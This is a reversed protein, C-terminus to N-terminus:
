LNVSELFVNVNVNLAFRIRRSFSRCLCAFGNCLQKRDYDSDAHSSLTSCYLCRRSSSTEGQHWGALYRSVVLTEASCLNVLLCAAHLLPGSVLCGHSSVSVALSSVLCSVALSSSVRAAVIRRYNRVSAMRGLLLLCRTEASCCLNVLLAALPWVCSLWSVLCLCGAVLRSSVRSLWRRSSIRTAVIRDNRVSAMRGLLSVRRASRASQRLLSSALHSSVFRSNILCAGLPFRKSKGSEAWICCLPWQPASLLLVSCGPNSCVTPFNRGSSAWELVHFLSTAFWSTLASELLM